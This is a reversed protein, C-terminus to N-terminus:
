VRCEVFVDSSDMQVMAARCIAVGKGSSQILFGPNISQIRKALPMVAICKSYERTELVTIISLFLCYCVSSDNGYEAIGRLGLWRGAWM